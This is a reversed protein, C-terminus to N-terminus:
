HDRFQQELEKVRDSLHKIENERVEKLRRRFSEHLWKACGLTLAYGAAIGPIVVYTLTWWLAKIEAPSVPAVGQVGNM